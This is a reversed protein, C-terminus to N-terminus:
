KFLLLNNYSPKKIGFFDKWYNSVGLIKANQSNDGLELCHILKWAM